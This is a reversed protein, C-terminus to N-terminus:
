SVFADSEGDVQLKLGVTMSNDPKGRIAELPKDSMEIVDTAHVVSIRARSSAHSAYEGALLEDLTSTVVESRGVLQITDDPDLDALALLAGAVPATPAFDGGM